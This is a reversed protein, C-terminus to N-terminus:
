KGSREMWLRMMMIMVMMTTMSRERKRKKEREGGAYALSVHLLYHSTSHVLVADCFDGTHEADRRMGGFNENYKGGV